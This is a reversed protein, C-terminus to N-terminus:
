KFLLKVICLNFLATRHDWKAKEILPQEEPTFYQFNSMTNAGLVIITGQGIKEMAAVAPRAGASASNGPM